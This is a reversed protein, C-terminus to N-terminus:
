IVGMKFIVQEPDHTTTAFLGKGISKGDVTVTLTKIRLQHLKRLHQWGVGVVTQRKCQLKPKQDLEGCQINRLLGRTHVSELGQRTQFPTPTWCLLM